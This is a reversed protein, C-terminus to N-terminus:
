FWRTSCDSRLSWQRLRRIAECSGRARRIVGQLESALPVPTVRSLDHDSLILNYALPGPDIFPSVLFCSDICVDLLPYGTANRVDKVGGGNGMMGDEIVM